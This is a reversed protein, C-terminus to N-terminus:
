KQVFTSHPYSCCGKTQSSTFFWLRWVHWLVQILAQHMALIRLRCISGLQSITSLLTDLWFFQYAHLIIILKRFSLPSPRNADIWECPSHTHLGPASPSATSSNPGSSVLFMPRWHATISQAPIDSSPATSCNLKTAQLVAKLILHEYIFM